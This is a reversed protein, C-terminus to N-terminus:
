TPFVYGREWVLVRTKKNMSMLMFMAMNIYIILLTSLM